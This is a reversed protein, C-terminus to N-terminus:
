QNINNKEDVIEYNQPVHYKRKFCKCTNYFQLIIFTVGM